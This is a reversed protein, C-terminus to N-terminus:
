DGNKLNLKNNMDKIGAYIYSKIGLVSAQEVNKISDDFYICEEPRLCNESLLTEFAKPDPKVFGTQWSYYVRDFIGLMGILEPFEKQYYAAREKFNNSLIFLRYGQEKLAKVSNFLEHDIGEKGFWYDFFQKESFSVNWEELYPKWLSFTNKNEPQRIKQMIQNLVPMFVSEEIGFDDRFRDSLKPSKIFVGNLDFIIAKIMLGM